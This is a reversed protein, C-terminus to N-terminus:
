APHAEPPAADRADAPAPARARDSPAAGETAVARSAHSAPLWRFDGPSFLPQFPTSDVM